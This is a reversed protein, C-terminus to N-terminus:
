HWLYVALRDTTPSMAENTAVGDHLLGSSVTLLNDELHAVIRQYFTEYREDPKRKINALNLFNVESPTFNYHKRIRKWVWSLSTSRKLIENGLLSPAFQAIIGLMCDLVISKQVATKRNAAKAADDTLDHNAVSAPPILYKSAM